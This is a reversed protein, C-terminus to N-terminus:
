PTPTPIFVGSSAGQRGQGLVRGTFRSMTGVMLMSFGAMREVPAVLKGIATDLAVLESEAIFIRDGPLIQYNTVTSGQATIAKWDVPLVQVQEAYPTPRAIWIRKSSLGSMGGIQSIADLVTENGTVPFRAVQDGLGAGETIIYFVKSNYAYVDLAIEPEDLHQALHAEIAEKAQALTMGVITVNGYTGLHVSGEPTVLHVGAIQQQGAMMALKVTVVPERLTERLLEEVAKQAEEVSKGTVKVTGYPAGLNLIGGGEIPYEGSIPYDPLSGVVVVSLVDATRLRYPSKPIVHLANIELLDPPEIIYDPYAVKALERPMPGHVLPETDVNIASSGPSLSRCGGAVSLFAIAVLALWSSWRSIPRRNDYKLRRTKPYPGSIMVVDGFTPPAGRKPPHDSERLPASAADQGVSPHRRVVLQAVRWDTPARSPASRSSANKM